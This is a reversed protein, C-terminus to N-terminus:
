SRVYFLECAECYGDVRGRGFAKVLQKKVWDQGQQGGGGEIGQSLMMQFGVEILRESRENMEASVLETVVSNAQQKVINELFKDYGLKAVTAERIIALESKVRPIDKMLMRFIELRGEEWLKKGMAELVAAPDFIETEM